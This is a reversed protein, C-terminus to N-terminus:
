EADIKEQLEAQEALLATMKDDGMPEAFEESIANFRALAATLPGFALLVNESVSKSDDLRPEQELYGVRVGEAAWAEGGYETEIGMVRRVTM